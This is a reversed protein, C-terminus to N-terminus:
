LIMLPPWGVVVVDAGVAVRDGARGGVVGFSLGIGVVGLDVDGPVLAVGGCCCWWQLLVVVVVL